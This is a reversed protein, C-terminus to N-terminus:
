YRNFRYGRIDIYQPKPDENSPYDSMTSNRDELGRRGELRRGQLRRGELRRRGELKM